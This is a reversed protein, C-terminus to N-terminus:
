LPIEVLNTPKWSPDEMELMAQQAEKLAKLTQPSLVVVEVEVPTGEELGYDWNM